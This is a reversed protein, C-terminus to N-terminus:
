NGQPPIAPMEFPIKKYDSPPSFLKKPIPEQSIKTVLCTSSMTMNGMTWYTVTKIPYGKLAAWQDIAKKSYYTGGLTELYKQFLSCDYSFDETLWMEVKMNLSPQEVLVQYCNCQCIKQKKGTKRVIVEWTEPTEGPVAAGMQLMQQFDEFAVEQYTKQVTNLMLILNQDLRFIVVRYHDPDECRLMDKTMWIKQPCTSTPRGMIGSTTVQKEVYLDGGMPAAMAGMVALLLVLFAVKKLHRLIAM